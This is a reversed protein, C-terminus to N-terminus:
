ENRLADLLRGRLALAAAIWTCLTGSIFVAALALGLSAYPVETGPSLVSPLVAVLASAAGALLGLLLLAGHESVILWKVARSRYGVALLLALEGRRELVNRMVVVGVGASGLLLGLGGLIQFTSLYTNQVANFAALRRAAPTIEFGHDRLARSLSASVAEVRNSSADILFMRYGDESPFRAVFEDEAIILNGQLISNAVAGVLRVKFARGREDTYDLTDGIKKGMAWVISAEDGIAPVSTDIISPTQISGVVGEESHVFPNLLLWPNKPSIDRITKAFTFAKREALLEPKVGLLRPKQAHNLNLCSAEDGDRVRFPVFSVGAVDQEDLGFFERGARANLDQVVPVTSEGILAFGGTGSSRKGTGGVELRFVGISAILFSGCALLGLTALSRKRRRAANRVSMGTITIEAGADFRSLATLWASCFAVASSLLLAGASFFLEANSTDKKWLAWGVAALAAFAAATGLLKVRGAKQFGANSFDFAAGGEEVLLERVPQRAQKRLTLWMTLWTIIVGAAAGLALTAPETHFRLASTGVADRWVTSLADLMAHSYAVGGVVGLAAGLVALAAGELLLTRRVQKPTFGLALLIGVEAARQEIGFQFLLAMLLLAAAILFFSFGLFLGGFDQSQEAAALAQQRVPEFSLGISAPDLGAILKKELEVRSRNLFGSLVTPSAPDRPPPASPVAKGGPSLDIPGVSRIGRSFLPLDFRYRVATLSGFRNSWMRQGAALTIFAKPTGRHSKWYEEDKPRIKALKVPLSPDWDRTSEAKELGPFDPMLTRDAAAGSLPVVARVIFENTREELRRSLGIVYYSLGLKDGPKAGLDDALWRNIIVEDDRMAPPVVPAGMATVMSYPTARDGIRLENVFYTLVGSANTASKLAADAVPPDLFVRDTRLELANVAPLGRLELQADALKWTQRFAVNAQVVAWPDEDTSALLLNARGPLLLQKQLAALSVFANFPAIQSAQLSFRGFEADSAIAAVKLRLSVSADEQPSIPAERSLRDPKAVRLVVSDGPKVKLQAALPQNLVVEDDSPPKFSPQTNNLWWFREDVGLLRARNVHASDDPTGATAALQIAPAVQGEILGKHALEDALAARFYRDNGALALQVRGLRALAMERLSGRVSDGVVLAGILVASGAAAGLLAGLHSRAHFRLSRVILTWFTM